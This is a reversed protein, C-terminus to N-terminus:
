LSPREFAFKTTWVENVIKAAIAPTILKKNYNKSLTIHPKIFNYFLIVISLKAKFYPKEKCFKYTKRQLHADNLRLTGNSREVYSTNIKKSSSKSLREKIRKENGFVIRTEVKKITGKERTKHVVAYDIEEDIKKITKKSCGYKEVCDFTELTHYAEFIANEYHPLEDTVFLPKNVVRSSLDNIFKRCNDITRDGVLSCVILRTNVDLATWVWTRGYEKELDKESLTKKEACFVM